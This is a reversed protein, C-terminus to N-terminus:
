KKTYLYSSGLLQNIEMTSVKERWRERSCTNLGIGSDIYILRNIVVILFLLITMRKKLTLNFMKVLEKNEM